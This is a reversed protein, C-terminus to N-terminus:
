YNRATMNMFISFATILFIPLLFAWGVLPTGVSNKVLFLLIGAISTIIGSFAMAESDTSVNSRMVFFLVVGVGILLTGVWPIGSISQFNILWSGPNTIIDNSTLGSLNYNSTLPDSINVM